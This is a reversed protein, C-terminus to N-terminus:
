SHIALHISYMLSKYATVAIDSSRWLLELASDFAKSPIFVLSTTKAAEEVVPWIKRQLVRAMTPTYFM